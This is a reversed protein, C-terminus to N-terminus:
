QEVTYINSSNGTLRDALHSSSVKSTVASVSSSIVRIEDDSDFTISVM